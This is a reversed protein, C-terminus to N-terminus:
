ISILKQMLYMFTILQLFGLCVVRLILQIDGVWFMKSKGRVFRIIENVRPTIDKMIELKVPEPVNEVFYDEVVTKSDVFKKVQEVRYNKYDFKNTIVEILIFQCSRKDFDGLYIYEYSPDNFLLTMKFFEFEPFNFEREYDKEEKLRIIYPLRLRCQIKISM